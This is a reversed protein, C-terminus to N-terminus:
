APLRPTPPTVRRARRARLLAPGAVALRRRTPVRVRRRLVQYDAKEVEDLIASYLLFATRICDRSSPHLLGIGPAAARYIARARDIEFRILERISRTVVGHQLAARTVGFADLDEQPLYVRGRQLDEAVDRIFNSLQFAEGLRRAYIEAGADLPGLLPLMQLGIVAASGYMYRELDAYTAYGTRTIDMRMSAFFADFHELPIDWTRATHVAARGIPDPSDGLALDDLLRKGWTLLAAPDPADLDDILEDAYRALGYLAHVYPRRAPPLLLTALYYTKGHSANLRRCREYSERLAPETIGAADLERGSVAGGGKSGAAAIVWLCLRHTHLQQLLRTSESTSVFVM